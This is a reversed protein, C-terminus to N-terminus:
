IQGSADHLIIPAVVVYYIGGSDSPSTEDVVAFMPLNLMRRKTSNQTPKSRYPPWRASNRGRCPRAGLVPPHHWGVDNRTPGPGVRGTRM